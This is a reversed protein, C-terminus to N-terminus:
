LGYDVQTNLIDSFSPQQKGVTPVVAFWNGIRQLHLWSGDVALKHSWDEQKSDYVNLSEYFRSLLISIYSRKLLYGPATLACGIRIFSSYGTNEGAIINHSLLLVDWDNWGISLFFIELMEVAYTMNPIVFDDECILIYPADTFTLAEELAKIHSKLCGYAGLSPEYVAEIRHM